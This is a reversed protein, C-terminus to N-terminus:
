IDKGYDFEIVNGFIKIDNSKRNFLIFGDDFIAYVKKNKEKSIKEFQNLYEKDNISHVDFYFNDKILGIGKYWDFKKYYNNKETIFYNEFQVESGASAGIVIKNYNKITDILDCENIKNYLMEPNGGPMLIIDSENIIKKMDDKKDSYCNLYKVNNINLGISMLREIYKNYVHELYFTHVGSKNTEVAFSWPIVVLKTDNNIVKKLEEKSIDFCIDFKSFLFSYM